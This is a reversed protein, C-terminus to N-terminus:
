SRTATPASSTSSSAAPPAVWEVDVRYNLVLFGFPNEIRDVEKTMAQPQYEYRVTAVNRTTVPANGQTSRVEKDFTVIAEGARGAQTTTSMRVNVITILHEQTRAVKEQMANPGRFKAAYPEWIAPTSMRAVQNYDRQLLGFTYGEYARVYDSANKQDMALVQPVTETTVGNVLTTQGTLRDVVHTIPLPTPRSSQYLACAVGMVGIACGIWAVMWARSNSRHQMARRDIDWASAEALKALAKPSTPLPKGDDADPASSLMRLTTATM